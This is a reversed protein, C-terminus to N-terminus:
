MSIFSQNRMSDTAVAGELMRIEREKSHRRRKINPLGPMLSSLHVLLVWTSTSTGVPSGYEKKEWFAGKQLGLCTTSIVCFHDVGGGGLASLPPRCLILYMKLSM